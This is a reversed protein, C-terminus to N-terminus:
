NLDVKMTPFQGVMRLGSNLREQVCEQGTFPMGFSGRLENDFVLILKFKM